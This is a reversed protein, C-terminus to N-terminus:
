PPLYPPILLGHADTVSQGPQWATTIALNNGPESDHQTVLQGQNNLLQVFVKYRRDLPQATSWMFTVGLVDGAQVTTASLTVNQLTISDGFRATI